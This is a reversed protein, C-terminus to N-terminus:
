LPARGQHGRGKVPGVRSILLSEGAIDCQDGYHLVFRCRKMLDPHKNNALRADAESLEVSIINDDGPLNRGAETRSLRFPAVSIPKLVVGGNEGEISIWVRKADLSRSSFLDPISIKGPVRDNANNSKTKTKQQCRIPATPGLIGTSSIGSFEVVGGDTDQVNAMLAQSRDSLARYYEYGKKRLRGAILVANCQDLFAANQASDCVSFVGYQVVPVGGAESAIYDCVELSTLPSKLDGATITLSASQAFAATNAGFALFTLLGLKTKM